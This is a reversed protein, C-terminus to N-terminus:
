SKIKYFNQIRHNLSLLETDNVDPKAHINKIMAFLERTENIDMGSKGSLSVILEDNVKGTNLFYKNRIYEYFYTIMKEAINKNDKKQLYLRGVTETFVVSNNALPPIEKIVRQKRKINFLVYLILATLTLWFAARLSPNKMIVNFSSFEDDGGTASDSESKRRYTKKQYYADWYINDLDTRLYSLVKELYAHNNDKLLFYNSFSRPGAHLYIRGKKIFRVIYDPQGAENVGLVRTYDPDFGVFHNLFPYYYYNFTNSDAQSVAKVSTQQMIGNAEKVFESDREIQVELKDLLADDIYDASIFLDNGEKVYSLMAAAEAPTVMLNKTVLLYLSPRARDYKTMKIWAEDFPDLITEIYPDGFLLKAHNYAVFAGFPKKDYRDYTENLSPMSIGAGKQKKCGSFLVIVILIYVPAKM